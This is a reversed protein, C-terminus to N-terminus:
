EEEEDDACVAARELHSRFDGIGGVGARVMASVQRGALVAM